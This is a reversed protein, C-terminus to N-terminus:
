LLCARIVWPFPTPHAPLILGSVLGDLGAVALDAALRVHVWAMVGCTFFGREVRAAGRGPLEAARWGLSARRGSIASGKRRRRAKARSKGSEAGGRQQEAAGAEEGGGDGGGEGAAAAAAGRRVGSTGASKTIPSEVASTPM